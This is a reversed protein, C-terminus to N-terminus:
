KGGLGMLFPDTQQKNGGSYAPTSNSKLREDVASTVAENFAKAVADISANCADANSYDLIEALQRPLNKEALIDYATAKLERKMVATERATLEDERKKAEYKAKEEANMKALKAAEEKEAAFKKQQRELREAVIRDVDAQSFTKDSAPAPENKQPETGQPAPDQAGAAGTPEAGDLNEAFFQMPIKFFKKM